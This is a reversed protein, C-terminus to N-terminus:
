AKSLTQQRKVFGASVRHHQRVVVLGLTFVRFEGGAIQPEAELLKVFFSYQKFHAGLTQTERGFCLHSFGLIAPRAKFM